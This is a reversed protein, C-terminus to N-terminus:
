VDKEFGFDKEPVQPAVLILPSGEAGGTGGRQARGGVARVQRCGNGVGQM